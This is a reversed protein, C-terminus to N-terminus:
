DKSDSKSSRSVVLGFFLNLVLAKLVTLKSIGFVATLLSATFLYNVIWMMPYSFIVAIIFLLSLFGVFAVLATVLKLM